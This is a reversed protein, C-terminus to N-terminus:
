ITIKINHSICYKLLSEDTAIVNDIYKLSKPHLSGGLINHNDTSTILEEPLILVTAGSKKAFKLRSKCSLTASKDIFISNRLLKKDVAFVLNKHLLISPISYLNWLHFAAACRGIFDRSGVEVAWIVISKAQNYKKGFFSTM